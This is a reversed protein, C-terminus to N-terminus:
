PNHSIQFSHTSHSPFRQTFSNPTRKFNATVPQQKESTQLKAVNNVLDIDVHKIVNPEQHDPVRLQIVNYAPPPASRGGGDVSEDDDYEAYQQQQQQQQYQQQQQHQQHQLQQQHQQHQLQQQQLQQQQQVVAGHQVYQQIEAPMFSGLGRPKSSPVFQVRGGGSAPRRGGAQLVGSSGGAAGHQQVLYDGAQLLQQQHLQQQHQHQLHLQHAANHLHLPHHHHHGRNHHHDLSSKHPPPQPQPAAPKQGVVGLSGFHKHGLYGLHKHQHGYAGAHKHSHASKGVHGHDHAVKGSHKHDHVVKGSHILPIGKGALKYTHVHNVHQPMEKPVVIIIRHHEHDEAATIEDQYEDSKPVVRRPITDESSCVTVTFICGILLGHWFQEKVIKRYM